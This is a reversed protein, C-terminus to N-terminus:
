DEKITEEADWLDFSLVNDIEYRSYGYYTNAGDEIYPHAELKKVIRKAEDKSSVVGVVKTDTGDMPISVKRTIVYVEM